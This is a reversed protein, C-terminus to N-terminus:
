LRKEFRAFTIKWPEYIRTGKPEYSLARYYGPLFPNAADCVLRLVIAGSRKAHAEAWAMIAEGLKEGHRSHSVALRHLYLAHTPADDWLEAADRGIGVSAIVEGQDRLVFLEGHEVERELLERPFVGSWQSIGKTKLWRSLEHITAAVQDIDNEAAPVLVLPLAM